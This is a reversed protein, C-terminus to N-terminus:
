NRKRKVLPLDDMSGFVGIFTLGQLPLAILGGLWENDTWQWVFFGLVGFGLGALIFCLRLAVNAALRM